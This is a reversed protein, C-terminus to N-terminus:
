PCGRAGPGPKVHGLAKRADEHEPDLKLVKEFQKRALQEEGINQLWAGLEFRGKVDEPKIKKLQKALIEEATEGRDIYEVEDYPITLTAGRVKIVIEDDSEEVIKGKVVGGTNLYIVDATAVICSFVIGVLLFIHLLRGVM